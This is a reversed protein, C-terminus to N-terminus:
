NPLISHCTEGTDLSSRTSPYQLLLVLDYTVKEYYVRRNFWTGFSIEM